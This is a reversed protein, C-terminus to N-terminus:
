CFVIKKVALLSGFMIACSNGVYFFIYIYFSLLWIEGLDLKYKQVTLFKNLFSCEYFQNLVRAKLVPVQCMFSPNITEFHILSTLM